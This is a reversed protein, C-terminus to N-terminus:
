RATSVTRRHDNLRRHSVRHSGTPRRRPRDMEDWGPAERMAVVIAIVAGSGVLLALVLALEDDGPGTAALAAGEWSPRLWPWREQPAPGRAEVPGVYYDVILRPGRIPSL